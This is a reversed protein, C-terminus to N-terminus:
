RCKWLINKETTTMRNYDEITLNRDKLYDKQEKSLNGYELKDRHYQEIERYDAEENKISYSESENGKLYEIREKSLERNYSKERAKELNEIEKDIEKIKDEFVAISKNKAYKFYRSYKGKNEYVEFYDKFEAPIHSEAETRSNYSISTYPYKSIRKEGRYFVVAETSPIGNIIDSLKKFVEKQKKLNEIKNTYDAVTNDVKRYRIDNNETSFTGVNDTASKVQNSNFVIYDTTPHTAFENTEWNMREEDNPGYDRVNKIIVGDQNNDKAKQLDKVTAADDPM